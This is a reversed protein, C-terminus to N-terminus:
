EDVGHVAFFGDLLEMEKMEKWAPDWRDHVKTVEWEYRKVINPLSKDRVWRGYMKDEHLEAKVTCKADTCPRPIEMLASGDAPGHKMWFRKVFAHISLAHEYNGHVLANHLRIPGNMIM